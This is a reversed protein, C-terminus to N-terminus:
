VCNTIKLEYNNGSPGSLGIQCFLYPAGNYEMSFRTTATEFSDFYLPAIDVSDTAPDGDPDVVWYSSVNGMSAPYALFPRIAIGDHGAGTAYTINYVKSDKDNCVHTTNDASIRDNSNSIRTTVFENFSINVWATGSWRRFLLNTGGSV